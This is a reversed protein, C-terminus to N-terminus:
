LKIDDAPNATSRLQIKGAAWLGHVPGITETPIAIIKHDIRTRYRHNNTIIQNKCVSEFGSQLNFRAASEATQRNKGPAFFPGSPGKIQLQHTPNFASASGSALTVTVMAGVMTILTTATTIETSISMMTIWAGCAKMGIVM